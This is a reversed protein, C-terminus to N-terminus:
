GVPSLRPLEGDSRAASRQADRRQEADLFALSADFAYDRCIPITWSRGDAREVRLARNPISLLLEFIGLIALPVIAAVPLEVLLMVAAIAVVAAVCDLRVFTKVRGSAFQGLPIEIRRRRLPVFGLFAPRHEIRLARDNISIRVRLYPTPRFVPLVMEADRVDEM